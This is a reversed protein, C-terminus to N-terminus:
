KVTFTNVRMIGRINYKQWQDSSIAEIPVVLGTVQIKSGTPTDAGANGFQLSSTDLAYYDGSDTKIGLACELTHPEDPNKVPLCTYEGDLMIESPTPPASDDVAPPNETQQWPFVQCWKDECTFTILGVGLAAICLIICVAIWFTKM